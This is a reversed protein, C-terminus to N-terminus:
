RENKLEELTYGLKHILLHCNPCVVVLNERTDTGGKSLPIMHHIITTRSYGCAECVDPLNFRCRLKKSSRSTHSPSARAYRRRCIESCLITHTRGEFKNKCFACTKTIMRARFKKVYNDRCLISCYKKLKNAIFESQCHQCRKGTKPTPIYVKKAHNLSACKHSCCKKNALIAFFSQGCQKCARIRAKEYESFTCRHRYFLARHNRNCYHHLKNYTKDIFTIECWKCQTQREM